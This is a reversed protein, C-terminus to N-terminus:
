QIMLLAADDYKADLIKQIEESFLEEIMESRIKGRLCFLSNYKIIQLSDHPMNDKLWESLPLTTHARQYHDCVCEFIIGKAQRIETEIIM